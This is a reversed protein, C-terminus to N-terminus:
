GSDPVAPRYSSAWYYVKWPGSTGGVRKLGIYFSAPKADSTASPVMLVELVVENAFSREVKFTTLDTQDSPYPVVPINGTKWEALTMGQRLEPHALGYSEALNKRAVATLIFEGAVRRAAPDVKVTKPQKFTQAPESSFTEKTDSTNGVFAVLATAVAAGLLAVSSWLIIRQNRPSQYFPRKESSATSV